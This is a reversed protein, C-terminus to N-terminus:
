KEKLIVTRGRRDAAASRLSMLRGKNGGDNISHRPSVFSVSNDNSDKKNLMREGKENWRGRGKRKGNVQMKVNERKRGQSNIM